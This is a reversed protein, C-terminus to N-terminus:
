LTLSREIWGTDRRCTGRLLYKYTETTIRRSTKVDALTPERNSVQTIWVMCGRSIWNLDLVM